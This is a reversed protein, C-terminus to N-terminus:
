KCKKEAFKYYYSLAVIFIFLSPSFYGMGRVVIEVIFSFIVSNVILLKPDYINNKMSGRLYFFSKFFLRFYGILIIFGFVGLETIIKAALFGGDYRNVGDGTVQGLQHMILQTIYLTDQTGMMQFGLGLANTDFFSKKAYEIGQLYVLASLNESNSSIDIRGLFYGMDLSSIFIYFFCFVLLSFIINTFNLRILLFIMLLPYILMTTNPFFIAMFFSVLIVFIKEAMSNSIVFYVIFLMGSFLAYHSPEGFPFVVKSKNYIGALHYNTFINYLSIFILIYVSIKMAKYLINLKIKKIIVATLYAATFVFFLVPLSYYSKSQWEGIFVHQIVSYMCFIFYFLVVKVPIVKLFFFYKYIFPFLCVLFILVGLAASSAHLIAGTVPPLIGLLILLFVFTFVKLNYLM